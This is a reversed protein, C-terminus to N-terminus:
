IIKGYNIKSVLAVKYNNKIFQQIYDFAVKQAGIIRNSPLVYLIEYKDLNEKM